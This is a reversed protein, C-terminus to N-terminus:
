GTNGRRVAAVSGYRAAATRLRFGAIPWKFVHPADPPRATVKWKGVRAVLQRPRTKRYIRVIGAVPEPPARFLMGRGRSGHIDSLPLALEWALHTQYSRNVAPPGFMTIYRAGVVDVAQALEDHLRAREVAEDAEDRASGAHDAIEGASGALLLAGVIAAGIAAAVPRPPGARSAVETGVRAGLDVLLGAGVGGLMCMTVLAPLVYRVNGSFGVETMAAYLAVIAVAFLAMAVVVDGHAPRPLRRAGLRGALALLLAALASLELVVWAQGQAVDLAARWPVPALSLSWSPESRAQAGAYFPDGSGIYSPVLWALPVLTLVAASVARGPRRRWWIWAAYLILFGFLEPRALCVLGGLLLASRESGDLHRDVAWLALGMALPAENAHFLYKVLDPTLALAGAAVGGAILRRTTGGGAVRAAVKFALALALLGGARAVVIWLAPPIRDDLASLPAFLTTFAVPLPKWSPGGTTNLSLHAIERGWVLWAWPDFSPESPGLLSLAGLLLCVVVTPAM